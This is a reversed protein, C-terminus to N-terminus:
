QLRKFTSAAIALVKENTVKHDERKEKNQERYLDIIDQADSMMPWYHQDQWKQAAVFEAESVRPKEPNLFKIIDAPTPIDNKEDTYKELAYVVQSVSFRSELKLRFYEFLPSLQVVKGYAKQGECIM